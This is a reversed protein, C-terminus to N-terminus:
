KETKKGDIDLFLTIILAALAVMSFTMYMAKYGYARLIIGSISSGVLGGLGVTLASYVAQASGQFKAPFARSVYTVTSCHYAGFTLAHLPQLCAVVVVSTDFAFGFLRCVTGILAMIYLTKVGFKAIIQKSFFVLPLESFSGLLWIYGVNSFGYVENLYRSFFSYYSMMASRAMFATLIVGIFTPTLMIHWPMRDGNSAGKPQEERRLSSRRVPSDSNDEPQETYTEEPIKPILLLSAAQILFSATLIALIRHGTTDNSIHFIREFACVAIVYGVTGGIRVHGYDCGNRRFHKFTIGDTLPIATKHFFGFVLTIALAILIGNNPGLLWLFPVSCIISVLLVARPARCRDSLMGWLPPSLVAMLELAGQLYGIHDYNYGYLNLLQQFYPTLVSFPLFLSIYILFFRFEFNRKESTSLQPM